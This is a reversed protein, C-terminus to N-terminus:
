SVKLYIDGEIERQCDAFCWAQRHAMAIYSVEFDRQVERDRDTQRDIQLKVITPTLVVVRVRIHKSIKVFGNNLM